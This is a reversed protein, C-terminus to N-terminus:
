TDKKIDYGFGLEGKSVMKWGKCGQEDCDCRVADLGIKELAYVSMRSKKAYEEIFDEKTM